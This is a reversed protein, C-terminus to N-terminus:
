LTLDTVDSMTHGITSYMFVNILFPVTILAVGIAMSSVGKTLHGAHPQDYNKKLLKIGHIFLFVGTCAAFYLAFKVMSTMTQKTNGFANDFQYESHGAMCVPSVLVGVIIYYLKKM